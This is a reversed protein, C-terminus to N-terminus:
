STSKGPDLQLSNQMSHQCELTSWGAFGGAQLAIKQNKARAGRGHSRKGEVLVTMGRFRENSSLTLLVVGHSVGVRAWGPRDPQFDGRDVEYFLKLSHGECSCTHSVSCVTKSM